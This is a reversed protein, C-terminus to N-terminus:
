YLGTKDRYAKYAAEKRQKERHHIGHVISNNAFSAFFSALEKSRTFLDSPRQDKPLNMDALLQNAMEAVALMKDVLYVEDGTPPNQISHGRQVQQHYGVRCSVSCFKGGRRKPIYMKSCKLCESM